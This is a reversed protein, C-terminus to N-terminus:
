GRAAAMEQSGQGQKVAPMIQFLIVNTRDEGKVLQFEYGDLAKEVFYEYLQLSDRIVETKTEAGARDVLLDLRDYLKRSLDVTIRVTDRKRAM